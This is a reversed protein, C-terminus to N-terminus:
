IYASRNEKLSMLAEKLYNDVKERERELIKNVESFDIKKDAIDFDEFSELKRSELKVLSLFSSLRGSFEPPYIAIFNTNLNASFATAHFSDTVVLEANAIYSIFDTVEPILLSKGSQFVQDYRRCFRVLKLGKRKSLKKVYNDFQKNTNLQYVLLYPEKIKVPKIYQKWFEYPMALTPDIIFKGFSIGLDSLIDLGSIERVSIASYRELLKKTMDKEWDDLKDKGFSSAYSIKLSNEPAFDLFYQPIFGKNWKSNWVQDSGTCFVDAKIPYKEFDESTYYTHESLNINEKLFSNFVKNWRKMTPIYILQKIKKKIGSDKMTYTNLINKESLDPRVFDIIEVIYGLSEFKKQTALTQLASGYNKVNHMTIIAIKKNAM